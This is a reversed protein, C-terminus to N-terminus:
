DVEQPRGADHVAHRVARRPLARARDEVREVGDLERRTRGPEDGVERGRLVQPVAVPRRARAVRHERARVVAVRPAHHRACGPHREGGDAGGSTPLRGRAGCAPTRANVHRHCPEPLMRGMDVGVETWSSLCAGGGAVPAISRKKLIVSRPEVIPVSIRPPRTVNKAIAYMTTSFGSIMPVTWSPVPWNRPPPSAGSKPLIAAAVA